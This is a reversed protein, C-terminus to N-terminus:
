SETARQHLRAVLTSIVSKAQKSILSQDGTISFWRIDAIENSNYDSFRRIREDSEVIFFKARGQEIFETNDDIVDALLLGTEERVERIATVAATEDKESKGKPLSYVPSGVNKVLLVEDRCLLIVGATPLSKKYKDYSRLYGKITDM